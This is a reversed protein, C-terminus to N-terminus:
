WTYGMKKLHRDVKKSLEKAEDEISPLTNRYRKTLEKIRRTLQLSIVDMKSRVSDEISKLWKDDVVMQKIEKETLTKYRELLAQDLKKETDKIEKKANTGRNLLDLYEELIILGDDLSSVDRLEKIQEKINGKTINGADSRVLELPREEGSQVDIGSHEEALEQMKQNLEDQKVQLKELEIQEVKFYRDIVLTKPILASEWGIEKGKKNRTPDVEAKWGNTAVLYVDDQMTESWYTMLHQYIDYKDILKLNSFAVILKESLSKILEKPKTGVQISRLGLVNENKWKGFVQQFKQGYKIFEQHYFITKKIEEEPIRLHKYGKRKSSGFLSTKLSPYVDWYNQLLDIDINPIDGLLHAEIDQIDEEEQSDIYRPINLDYEKEEIESLPILRSYKPIEFQAIFVDVIKRIDQERLRNKNGDKYFGRSADVMFINKRNQAGEKDLIIVCASIGTGYFLNPPLGIIGKIYGKKILNQRINAEANGRFLVGHPLIVAGKGNSKISRVIHLLFAYDGNRAPPIGFGTFREYEDHEPNFGHRWSKYSFPPNAVVYDFTKIPGDNNLHLPNSLTSQGKKIEATPNNHMWMNLVALAATSNDMEQGYIAIGNPTAEAVKLLLSGSGCTPDYVTQSPGSAKEADILMAMIRSVEAPTYFQGKSKGSETAFNKMLYEYADGLIDDGDARNKSFSLDPNEFVAVLSSLRDQMAKGKGLKEEDNFNVVDIVGKLGNNEALKSLIKNIGDGIDVKGKLKVMDDFGGNEPIIVLANKQGAYKDTVYKVFLLVLIYDKYQSADMGGRLDDCSKWLSSYLESKKIAM